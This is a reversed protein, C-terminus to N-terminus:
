KLAGDVEEFFEGAVEAVVAPRSRPLWHGGRLRRVRLRPAWRSVETQLPTGVFRDADPAIVQVPVDTCRPKPRGLRSLMNARYLGLGHVADAAEVRFREAPGDPAYEARVLRGIIRGLIGKRVALEPLVPLVFFGIYLSSSAQRLFQGLAALNPRLQSRMWYGAHDLNPGSISTFSAIRGQLRDDTVGHWCQISGWDHGLLHVPRDAGVLEVVAALDAVLQDILYGARRPPATSEGAGRVDYTVVQFRDALLPVVRNWLDSNDPFGHVCVVTPAFPQGFRRVRLTVGDSTTLWETRPVVAEPQEGM